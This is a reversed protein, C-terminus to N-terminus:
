NDLHQFVPEAGSRNTLSTKSCIFWAQFQLASPLVIQVMGMKGINEVTIQANDVCSRWRELRFDEEAERLFGEALALRYEAERPLKM